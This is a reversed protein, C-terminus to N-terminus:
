YTPHWIEVYFTNPGLVQIARSTAILKFILKKTLIESICTQRSDNNFIVNTEFTSGSVTKHLGPNFQSLKLVFWRWSCLKHKRTGLLKWNWCHQMTLWMTQGMPTSWPPILPICPPHGTCDDGGGVFSILLHFWYEVISLDISWFLNYWVYIIFYYKWPFKLLQSNPHLRRGLSRIKLLNEISQQWFANAEPARGGSGAPPSVAGGFGRSSFTPDCGSGGSWGGKM